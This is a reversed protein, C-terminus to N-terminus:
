ASERSAVYAPSIQAVAVGRRTVVLTEGGTVRELYYGASRRFQDVRCIGDDGPNQADRDDSVGDATPRIQAVLLGRWLVDITEGAGVRDFLRGARTRVDDLRCMLADASRVVSPEKPGGDIPVIRGAVAGRRIVEITQGGLVQEFYGCANSRLQGLGIRCNSQQMPNLRGTGADGEM